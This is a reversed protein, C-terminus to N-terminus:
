PVILRHTPPLPTPRVQYEVGDVNYWQNIAPIQQGDKMRSPNWHEIRFCVNDGGESQPDGNLHLDETVEYIDWHDNIQCTYSAPLGENWEWKALEQRLDGSWPSAASPPSRTDGMILGAENDNGNLGCM